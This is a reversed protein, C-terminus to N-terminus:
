RQEIITAVAFAAIGESRGISGLKENTTAKVSVRSTDISLAGAVTSRIDDARKMVKPSEAILTMDLNVIRWGNNALMQGVQTLFVTSACGRWQPDTNQFHLGIDGLSAAGLLADCAAHLLVDADSHGELGLHDAFHVGGLFLKRTPDDSFPHIDYGIGTRTEPAALLSRARTLDEQTTIKFNNPDGEVIEPHVGLAEVLAMEDTLDGSASEHAEMLLDRSAAQPTQMSILKARDLTRISTALIEKITDVVPLAAAAARSRKAAEITRTILDLSVFPRAADHVLIIDATVAALIANKSSQQRTLGGAIVQVKEGLREALEAVKDPATVLIVRDIDPHALYTDLSWKWVPKGGLLAETKDAGFRTGRGAALIAAYTTM